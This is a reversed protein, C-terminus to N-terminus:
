RTLLSLKDHVAQLDEVGLSELYRETTKVSSHGLIRALYYINGGARLYSVAFTHRFTHFSVRVGTIRLHRGVLKLKHLLDSHDLTTGQSTPFVLAFKHRGLWRFLVKRLEFSIPVIRQKQGKGRVKVLLNEYDIEERRLEVAERIRLGTDLLLTVLAHLRFDPFTRPKWRLFADVQARTFTAIVKKETKMPPIRLHDKAYGEEHLWRLYANIARCYTNCSIPSVGSDRLAVVFAALSQKSYDESPHFRKFATFSGKYWDVTRPTVNKLYVRAKIFEEFRHV